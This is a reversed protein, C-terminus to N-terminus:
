RVVVKGPNLIGGPDLTDKLAAMTRLAVPNKHARMSALKSVGVGHEASVSGGVEVTVADIEALM